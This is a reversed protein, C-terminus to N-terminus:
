IEKNNNNNDVWEQYFAPLISEIYTVTEEITGLGEGGSANLHGGGNFYCNAFTNSPFNGQSRFSMKITDTEEKLFISFTIGHISLPLNVFGESDGKKHHYTEQEALSLVMIATGYEAYIKMKQSLLYGMLQMRQASYNNYLKRHLADKDVGKKILESIITYIEPSNSNYSFAGTDTMIGTCICEASHINMETFYGMRCIMRFILESTSAIEPHSITINAFTDPFPHHDVLIKTAKCNKIVDEMAGVRKLQNFDLCFVLDASEILDIAEDQYDDYILIDSSDPLFNLFNPFSNPMIIRTEKGQSFLFHYLGLSSGIADGDPNVHSVIVISTSKDIAKKTQSILDELIIKSIM